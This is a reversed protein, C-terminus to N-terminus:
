RWRFGPLNFFRLVSNITHLIRFKTRWKVTKHIRHKGSTDFSINGSTIEQPKKRSRKEIVLVSDYFHMSDVSTTFANPQLSRQETHFANLQDILSKSYEIFTGMRRHGGGYEIMYSTHLDECLYIGNPSIHKFLEEFTVIQQRMTHGGDDILIDIPPIKTIVQRLFERDSQSGIIVTINEEEFKKCEPNIDIGYIRANSGFYSKWLQLSGGQFIGIEVIVIEKDRFRSFHREYIDFYHTWKSIQRQSNNDFLRKIDNM